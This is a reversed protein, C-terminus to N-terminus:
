KFIRKGKLVQQQSM